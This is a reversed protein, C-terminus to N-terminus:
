AWGSITKKGVSVKCQHDTSSIQGPVYPPFVSAKVNTFQNQITPFRTDKVLTSAIHKHKMAEPQVVLSAMFCLCM